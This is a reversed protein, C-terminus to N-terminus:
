SSTVTASAIVASTRLASGDSDSCSAASCIACRRAPQRTTVRASRTTPIKVAISASLARTARVRLQAVGDPRAAVSEDEGSPVGGAQRSIMVSLPGVSQAMMRAPPSSSGPAAERPAEGERVPGKPRHVEAARHAPSPRPATPGAAGRRRTSRSPCAPALRRTAGRYARDRDARPSSARAPRPRLPPRLCRSPSWPLWPM